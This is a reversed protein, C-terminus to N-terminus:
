HGETVQASSVVQTLVSTNRAYVPFVSYQVEVSLHQHHMIKVVAGVTSNV